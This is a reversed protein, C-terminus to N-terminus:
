RMHQGERGHMGGDGRDGGDRGGLAVGSNPSRRQMNEGLSGAAPRGGERLMGHMRTGRSDSM